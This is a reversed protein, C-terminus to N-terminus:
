QKPTILARPEKIGRDRADKKARRVKASLRKQALEDVFQPRRCDRMARVPFLPMSAMWRAVGRAKRALSLVAREVYFYGFLFVIVVLCIALVLAMVESLLLVLLEGM